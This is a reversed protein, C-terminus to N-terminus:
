YSRKVAFIALQDGIDDAHSAVDRLAVIWGRLQRKFELPLDSGFVDKGLRLAITTAERNHFNIKHTHNRVSLPDKFYARAGQLMAQAAKDVEAMVARFSENYEKPLDPREMVLGIVLHSCDDLTTDVEDLISLVDGRTDPMLMESYMVNAINRRLEDGRDEIGRIQELKEDLYDDAGKDLYHLFTQELVMVSESVKDIFEDIESVLLGTRQFPLIQVM